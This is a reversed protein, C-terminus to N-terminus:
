EMNYAFLPRFLGCLLSHSLCVYACMDGTKQVMTIGSLWLIKIVICVSFAQVLYVSGYISFHSCRCCHTQQPPRLWRVWEAEVTVAAVPLCVVLAVLPAPTPGMSVVSIHLRIFRCCSSSGCVSLQTVLAALCFPTFLSTSVKLM